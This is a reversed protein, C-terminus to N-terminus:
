RRAGDSDPLAALRRAAAEDLAVVRALYERLREAAGGAATAHSDLAAAARTAFEALQPVTTRGSWSAAARRCGSSIVEWERATRRLVEVDVDM